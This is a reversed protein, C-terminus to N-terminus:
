LSNRRERRLTWARALLYPGLPAAVLLAAIGFMLEEM